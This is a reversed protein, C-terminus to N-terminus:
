VSAKNSASNLYALLQKRIWHRGYVLVWVAFVAVTVPITFAWYVWFNDQMVQSQDWQLTPMSFLAAFFTAPLFVMTMVAITKMSSSDRKTAAALLISADADSHTLLAFLVNALREARDKLYECYEIYSSIHRQVPVIAKQLAELDAKGRDISSTTTLGFTEGRVYEDHIMALLKLGQKQLRGRNVINGAVENVAQLWSTLQNIAFRNVYELPAVGRWGSPHPGFGTSGEIHQITALEWGGTDSDFKWVLFFTSVFCLLSPTSMLTEYESLVSAFEEFWNSRRNIFLATTTLTAPDFTWVLAYLANGVFRTLLFGQTHYEHFGDYDRCIMYKVSPDARMCNLIRNFCGRSINLKFDLTRYICALKLNAAPTGHPNELPSSFWAELEDERFNVVAPKESSETLEIAKYIIATEITESESFKQTQNFVEESLSKIAEM